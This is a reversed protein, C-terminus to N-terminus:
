ASTGVATKSGGSIEDTVFGIFSPFSDVDGPLNHFAVFLLLGGFGTFLIGLPLSAARPIGVSTSVGYASVPIEGGTHFMQFVGGLVMIGGAVGAFIRIWSSPHFLWDIAETLKIFPAAVALLGQETADTAQGAGQIAQAVESGSSSSFDLGGVIGAWIASWDSAGDSGTSGSGTGAAAGSTGGITPIRAFGVVQGIGRSNTSYSDYRVVQGTSPDDIMTGPGTVIGVHGPASATGDSGPFFVLDGAQVQSAPVHPLSAWMAQSTRPVKLGLKGAAWYILGSCDAGGGFPNTGGWLYPTGLASKILSIFEATITPSASAGGPPAPLTAM